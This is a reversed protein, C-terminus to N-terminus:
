AARLPDGDAGRRRRMNSTDKSSCPPGAALTFRFTSIVSFRTYGAAGNSVIVGALSLEMVSLFSGGVAATST